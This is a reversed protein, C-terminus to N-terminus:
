EDKVIKKVKQRIFNEKMSNFDVKSKNRIYIDIVLCIIFICSFVTLILAALAKNSYISMKNGLFSTFIM